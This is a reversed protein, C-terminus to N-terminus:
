FTHVAALYFAVFYLCFCRSDAHQKIEWLTHKFVVSYNLKKYCTQVAYIVTMDRCM